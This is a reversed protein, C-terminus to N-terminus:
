SLMKSAVHIPNCAGRGLLNDYMNNDMQCPHQWISNRIPEADQFHMSCSIICVAHWMHTCVLLVLGTSSRGLILRLIGCFSWTLLNSLLIAVSM